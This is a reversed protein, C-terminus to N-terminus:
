TVCNRAYYTDAMDESMREPMRDPIDESIRQPQPGAPFVRIRLKRHLDPPSWESGSIATRTLRPVNCNRDLAQLQPGAPIVKIWLNSNPDPPSCQSRSSATSTQRLFSSSFFSAPKLDPPSWKSGSTATRTQCEIQPVSRDLVQLQRRAFSPPPPSPPPSASMFDLLGWRVLPSCCTFNYRKTAFFVFLYWYLNRQWYFGVNDELKEKAESVLSGFARDLLCSCSIHFFVENPPDSTM